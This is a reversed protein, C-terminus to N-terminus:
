PTHVAITQEILGRDTPAFISISGGPQSKDLRLIWSRDQGALVYTATPLNFLLDGRPATLIRLSRIQVHRDGTDEVTLRLHSPDVKVASWLLSVDSQKDPTVFIPMSLRFAFNIGNDSRPQVPVEAIIIRYTAERQSAPENRLGIRILQTQGPQITFIPPGVLLDDSPVLQDVGKQQSWAYLHVQVLTPNPEQSTLTFGATRVQTSLVARLPSIGLGDAWAPSRHLVTVLCIALLAVFKMKM